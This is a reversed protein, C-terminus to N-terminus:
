GGQVAHIIEIVDGNMLKTGPWKTKSVIAGNVAIAIGGTKKNIGLSDLLAVLTADPDFERITGNVKLKM